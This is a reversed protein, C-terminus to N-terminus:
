GIRGYSEEGGGAVKDEGREKDDEREADGGDADGGDADGGDGVIEGDKDNFLSDFSTSSFKRNYIM